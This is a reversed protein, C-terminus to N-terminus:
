IPTDGVGASDANEGTNSFPNDLWLLLDLKTFTNLRLSHVLNSFHWPYRAISKMYSLLLMTILATWIQIEVANRTTGVFSKIHFNQKLNRFFVEINWRAKYLAAITSAALKFDNTLLQVVTNSEANYVAVRRLCKGYKLPTEAGTLEITEDKMVDQHGVPPLEREEVTRYLLNDKHRVVYTVNSSDWHNLLGFDCYARDAVVIARPPVRVHWASSNDAGKGDTIYVYEPLFTMFDLLTHLKVAGKTHTYLAWDYLEMCLSILTSDLLKVPKKLGHIAKGGAVQQGLHELVKYYIDRFVESSRNKNQYGLTSKSPAKEVGLHNLNGMASMMGNATDRLSVCDAFQCFVMSILQTWTDCGKSHKDTGHKRIIKKIEEKPLYQLIQAFLTIKAMPTQTKQAKVLRIDKM